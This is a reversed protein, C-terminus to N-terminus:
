AGKSFSEGHRVAVDVDQLAVIRLTGSTSGTSTDINLDVGSWYGIMLDGWNGFLMQGATSIQNSVFVPYGNLQGNEMLFIGSGDDKKTQKLYGMQSANTVYALNGLLANDQSVETEMDIVEGWTCAGATESAFAVDGVNTANIVGTPTNGSGDGEFAQSDIALALRLALDQRVFNEVDISSQLLLKRSIDSYAGVTKPTMAVQDFTAASETVAGSEAVWYSTAGGTARPIAINGQLDRLVTAGARSAVMANDLQDIFSDALLDTAVTHGGATATGVNLDRKGTLIDMPIMLGQPDKGYKDGAARSAEFEFAAADQLRKDQPNALANIARMFSFERVESQTLGIDASETVPKAEGVKELLATRFEDVTKGNNVFDRALDKAEFKDGLADIDNIRALESKRVADREAQVDIKVEPKVVEKDESMERDGNIEVNEIVVPQKGTENSRGVGANVDAPISVFSVEYPTWSTARYTELDGESEEMSMKNIRYGVSVSHRIGDQVDQFIESARESKGFRVTARGKRDADISVDEVVGVHDAPDHDVLVAGGEKLRGLDVSKPSHDLIESGFWREVPEESSFAIQVSRDEESIADRQVSFSRYLSEVELTKNKLEKM